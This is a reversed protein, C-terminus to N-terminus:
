QFVTLSYYIEWWQFLLHDIRENFVDTDQFFHQRDNLEYWSNLNLLATQVKSFWLKDNELVQIQCCNSLFLWKNVYCVEGILQSDTVFRECWSSNLIYSPKIQTNGLLLGRFLVCFLAVTLGLSLAAAVVLWKLFM